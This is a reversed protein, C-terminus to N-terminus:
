NQESMFNMTVLLTLFDLKNLPCRNELIVLTISNMNSVCDYTSTSRHLIAPLMCKNLILPLCVGSQIFNSFFQIQSTNSISQFSNLTVKLPLSILKGVETIMGNVSLNLTLCSILFCGKSRCTISFCLFVHNVMSSMIVSVLIWYGACDLPDYISSNIIM